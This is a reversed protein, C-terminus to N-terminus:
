PCCNFLVQLVLLWRCDSSYGKLGQETVGVGAPFVARGRPVGPRPEIVPGCSFSHKNLGKRLNTGPGFRRAVGVIARSHFIAEKTTPLFGTPSMRRLPRTAARSTTLTTAARSQSMELGRLCILDLHSAAPPGGGSSGLSSPSEQRRRDGV